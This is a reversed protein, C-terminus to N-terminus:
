RLVKALEKSAEDLADDHNEVVAITAGSFISYSIAAAKNLLQHEEIQGLKEKDRKRTEDTSRRDAIESPDAEVVIICNPMLEELVWVPLGPLYGSPTKITAHTDVIVNKTKGVQAIKRGGMRQIDKQVDSELRRMEDRGKVVGRELAVELMMDGFNLIEYEEEIEELARQLVTSKGVGPTGTLVVVKM